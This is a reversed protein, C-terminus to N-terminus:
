ILFRWALIGKAQQPSRVLGKQTPFPEPASTGINYAFTKLQSPRLPMQNIIESYLIDKDVGPKRRKTRASNPAVLWKTGKLITDRFSEDKDMHHLLVSASRRNFGLPLLLCELFMPYHAPDAQQLTDVVKQYFSIIEDDTIDKSNPPLSRLSSALERHNYPYLHDIENSLVKNLYTPYNEFIWTDYDYYEEKEKSWSLESCSIMYAQLILPDPGTEKDIQLAEILKTEASTHLLVVAMLLRYIKACMKENKAILQQKLLELLYHISDEPPPQTFDRLPQILKQDIGSLSEIEKDGCLLALDRKAGPQRIDRIFERNELLEQLKKQTASTYKLLHGFIARTYDGEWEPVITKQFRGRLTSVLESTQEEEAPLQLNLLYQKLFGEITKSKRLGGYSEHREIEFKRIMEAREMCENLEKNGAKLSTSGFWRINELIFTGRKAAKLELVEAHGMPELDFYETLGQPDLELHDGLAAVISLTWIRERLDLIPAKWAEQALGIWKKELYSNKKPHHPWTSINLAIDKALDKVASNYSSTGFDTNEKEFFEWCNVLTEIQAQIEQNPNEASHSVAGANHYVTLQTQPRLSNPVNHHTPQIIAQPNELRIAGDPDVIAVAEQVTHLNERSKPNLPRHMGLVQLTIIALVIFSVYM